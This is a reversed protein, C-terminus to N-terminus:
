TLLADLMAPLTRSLDHEDAVRQRAAAIMRARLEGDSLVRRIGDALAAPDGPPVLVGAGGTLFETTGGHDTGVVPKGYSMAELVSM